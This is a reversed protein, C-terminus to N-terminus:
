WWHLRCDGTNGASVERWREGVQQVATKITEATPTDEAPALDSTSPPASNPPSWGCSALVFSSAALASAIRTHRMAALKRTLTGAAGRGTGCARTGSPRGASGGPLMRGM